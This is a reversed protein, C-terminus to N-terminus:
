RVSVKRESTVNLGDADVFAASAEVKTKGKGGLAKKGDGTLKLKVDRSKGSPITAKGSALKGGRGRLFVKVKCDIREAVPCSVSLKVSGGDLDGSQAIVTGQSTQECSPMPDDHLDALARDIASGCDIQDASGDRSKLLDAGVGGDLTDADGGGDLTDDGDDGVLDDPGGGGLITDAGAGGNLENAADNGILTDSGPGTTVNELDAGYNDKASEAAPDTPGDDAVGDLSIRVSFDSQAQATDLGPGGQLLDTGGDALGSGIVDDGSGGNMLDAGNSGSLQDDGDGASMSDDGSGGSLIDDGAGGDLVDNGDNGELRNASANGSLTDAALGGSIDEIDFVNDGECGAGPCAGGDNAVGDLSISVFSKRDRYTISDDEGPGGNFTDSGEATSTTTFADSGPGGDLTDDGPGDDIRDFGGGASIVDNGTGGGFIEYNQDGTLTDQGDEGYLSIPYDTFAAASSLTDNGAGGAITSYSVNKNVSSGVTATDGMDSLSVNFNAITAGPCSVKNATVATCGAAATITAGTDTLVYNGASLEITLNNTEGAAATYSLTSFSVSAFSALAGAPLLMLAAAAAIIALSLRRRM